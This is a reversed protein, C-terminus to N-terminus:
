SVGGTDDNSVERLIWGTTNKRMELSEKTKARYGGYSEKMAPEPVTLEKYYRLCSELLGLEKCVSALNGHANYVTNNPSTLLWRKARGNKKGSVDRNEIMNRIHEKSKVKGKHARSIKEAREKTYSEKPPSVYVGTDGGNGGAAENLGMFPRPRLSKELEFSRNKSGKHIVIMNEQFKLNFYRIFKGVTYKSKIHSSWRKELDITVGIYCNHYPTILDEKLGIVYVYYM